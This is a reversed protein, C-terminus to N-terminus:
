SVEEQADFREKEGALMEDAFAMSDEAGIASDQAAVLAYKHWHERDRMTDIGSMFKEVGKATDEIMKTLQEEM